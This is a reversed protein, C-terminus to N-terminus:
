PSVGGTTTITHDKADGMRSLQQLAESDLQVASAALNERLHRM